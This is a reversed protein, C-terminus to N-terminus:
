AADSCPVVAASRMPCACASTTALLPASMFTHRVSGDRHNISASALAMATTRWARPTAKAGSRSAM